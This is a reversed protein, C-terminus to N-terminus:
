EHHYGSNNIISYARYIQEAVILRVLQHPFVLKSLSWVANAKKLITDSVGYAGGILIVCTKVSQNMLQQFQSAWEVSSLLKGREDLVIFYHNPHLRKLILEEEYRKILEIDTVNKRPSIIELKVTCMPQIRKIYASVGMEIFAENVKGLSWIEIHM